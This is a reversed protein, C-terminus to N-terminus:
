AADGVIAAENVLNALDTGTFGTAARRNFLDKAYLLGVVNDIQERYVPYRSHGSETVVAVVKELPTGIEIGEVKSRPVMVDRATRDAFELVNRIM